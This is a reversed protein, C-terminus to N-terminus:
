IKPSSRIINHSAKHLSLTKERLIISHTGRDLSNRSKRWKYKQRTNNNNTPSSSYKIKM